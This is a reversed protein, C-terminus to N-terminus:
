RAGSRRWLWIAGVPLLLLWAVVLPTSGRDFGAEALFWRAALLVFVAAALYVILPLLRDPEVFRAM